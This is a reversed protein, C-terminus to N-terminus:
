EFVASADLRFLRRGNLQRGLTFCWISNRTNGFLQGQEDFGFPYLDGYQWRAARSIVKGTSLEVVNLERELADGGTVAVFKCDPSAVVCSPRFALRISKLPAGCNSDLVLLWFTAEQDSTTGELVALVRMTTAAIGPVAAVTYPTARIARGLAEQDLVWRRGDQANPDACFITSRRDDDREFVIITRADPGALLTQHDDFPLGGSRDVLIANDRLLFTANRGTQRDRLETVHSGPMQAPTLSVETAAPDLLHSLRQVDGWSGCPEVRSEALKWEWLFQTELQRNGDQASRWRQTVVYCRSNRAFFVGGIEYVISADKRRPPPVLQVEQKTTTHLAVAISSPGADNWPGPTGEHSGRAETWQLVAVIWASRVSASELTFGAESLGDPRIRSLHRFREQLPGATPRSEHIPEVAAAITLMAGSLSLLM